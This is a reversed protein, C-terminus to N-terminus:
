IDNVSVAFATLLSLLLLGTYTVDFIVLNHSLLAAM